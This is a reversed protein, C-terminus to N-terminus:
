HRIASQSARTRSGATRPRWDSGNPRTSRVSTSISPWAAGACILHPTLTRMGEPIPNVSTAM